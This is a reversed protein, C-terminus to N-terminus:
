DKSFKSSCRPCPANKVLSWTYPSSLHVYLFKIYIHNTLLQPGEIHSVDTQGQKCLFCNDLYKNNRQTGKNVYLFCNDLYKNSRQTGCIYIRNQTNLFPYNQLFYYEFVIFDKSQQGEMNPHVWHYGSSSSLVLRAWYSQRAKSSEMFVKHQIPRKTSTAYLGVGESRYDPIGSETSIGSCLVTCM